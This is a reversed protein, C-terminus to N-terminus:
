VISAGCDSCVWVIPDIIARNGSQNLIIWNHSELFSIECQQCTVRHYDANIYDYTYIPAGIMNIAGFADLRKNDVCITTTSDITESGLYLYDKIESTLLGPHYAKILAIVGTVYPVAMSTGSWVAVTNNYVNGIPNTTATTYIIEGPAFIDVYGFSSYNSPAESIVSKQNSSNLSGVSIVNDLVKTYKAPYAYYDNSDDILEEGDNGAACIVLGPFNEISEKLTRSKESGWSINLIDINSASAYGIAEALISAYSNRGSPIKLSVLTVEDCVGAICYNNDHEAGIIGAVATGHGREDNFPDDDDDDFSESLSQSVKSALDVNNIDIGTDIIGVLVESSGKTHVNWVDDLNINSIAWQIYSYPDNTIRNTVETALLDLEVLGCPEASAVFDVDNLKEIANLVEIKSNNKLTIKLIRNFTSLNIPNEVSDGNM